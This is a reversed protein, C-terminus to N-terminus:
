WKENDDIPDNRKFQQRSLIKQRQREIVLEAIVEAADRDKNSEIARKLKKEDVDLRYLISVLKDFKHLLLENIKQTLMSVWIQDDGEKLELGLERGTALMAERDNM